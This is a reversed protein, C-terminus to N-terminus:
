ERAAKHQKARLVLFGILAATVVFLPILYSYDGLTDMLEGFLFVWSLVALFTGTLVVGINLYPHLRLFYGIISGALPGTMHLPFWVFFLLGLIGFRRIRAQGKQASEISTQLMGKFFTTRLLNRQSFVFLPYILLVIISDIVTANAIVVWEPVGSDLGVSIGGARGSILHATVMSLLQRPLAFKCRALISLGCLWLVSLAVGMAFLNGEPTTPYRKRHRTTTDRKEAM